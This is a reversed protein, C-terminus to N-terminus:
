PKTLFDAAGDKMARVSTPIDGHGTLFIIPLLSDEGKLERQLDLGTLGPMQVDLVLCAPLGRQPRQLFAQASDYAEVEYGAAKILRSLAVSVPKEDDVVFVVPYSTNM